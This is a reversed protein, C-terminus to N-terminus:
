GAVFVQGLGFSFWLRRTGIYDEGVLLDGAFAPIDAIGM